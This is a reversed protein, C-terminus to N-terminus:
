SSSGRSSSRSRRSSARRHVGPRRALRRRGPVQRVANRLRRAPRHGSAQAVEDAGHRRPRLLRRGGRDGRGAPRVEAPLRRGAPAGLRAGADPQRAPLAPLGPPRADALQDRPDRARPVERPDRRRDCARTIRSEVTGSRKGRGADARARPGGSAGSACRARARGAADGEDRPVEAGARLATTPKTISRRRRAAVRPVGRARRLRADARARLGPGPAVHADSGAGPRSGTSPPSARPRRTSRASRSARTTSRSRTSRRRRDDLLHEYDPVAHMRDFPHPVYVLGGQRKIEAVTEALTMGRPIKEKLFLGIVEGQSATKVEEGVIVKVGYEAAKAAGRARRLDRQPRHGRDRRPRQERATALLVEVPTACDHSHDTHM